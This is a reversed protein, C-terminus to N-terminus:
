GRWGKVNNISFCIIAYLIIQSFLCHIENTTKSSSDLGTQLIFLLFSYFFFVLLSFFLIEKESEPGQLLCVFGATKNKGKCLLNIKFGRKHIEWQMERTKMAFTATMVNCIVALGVRGERKLLISSFYFSSFLILTNPFSLLPHPAIPLFTHRVYLLRTSDPLM